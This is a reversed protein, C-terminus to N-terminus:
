RSMALIIKYQQCYGKLSNTGSTQKTTFSNDTSEDFCTLNPKKAPRTGLSFDMTNSLIKNRAVLPFTNKLCAVTSSGTVSGTDPSFTFAGEGLRCLIYSVFYHTLTKTNSENYSISLGYQFRPSICTLRSANM